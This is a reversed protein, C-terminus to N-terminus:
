PRPPEVPVGEGPCPRVLSAGDECFGSEGERADVCLRIAGCDRGENCDANTACPTGGLPDPADPERPCGALCLAIALALVTRRM